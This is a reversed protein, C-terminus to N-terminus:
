LIIFPYSTFWLAWGYGAPASLLPLSFFAPPHLLATLPSMISRWTTVSFDAEDAYELMKLRQGYIDRAPHDDWEIWDFVGIQVPSKQFPTESVV